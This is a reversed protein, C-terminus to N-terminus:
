RGETYSPQAPVIVASAGQGGDSGDHRSRGPVCEVNGLLAHMPMRMPASNSASERGRQSCRFGAALDSPM